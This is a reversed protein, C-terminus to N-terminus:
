HVRADLVDRVKHAIDIPTFPKQLFSVQDKLLGHRVVADDTYGSMYLVKLSPRLALLKEALERGNIQPMVIDTALLHIVEKYQSSIGLAEDGDRAELVSYGHRELITRALARVGDEDEVLLITETGDLAAQSTSSSGAIAAAEVDRPLYIKITTGSKPESHVAAHGGSQKIIGYVMALGLGTGSAGKTTFFPEFIRARTAADMGCGTDSVALVVHAGARADPYRAVYKQDLEVNATELTLKGGSPMADRSNIVLNMVVQEMQGRDARVRWLDEAPLFAFKIDEGILRGLMSEMNTCLDNLDLVVPTLVQKRSFALLQRTLGAARSGANHIEKVMERLPDEPRFSDGLIESYGLIVTLLNNFDHAVGGALKGVAEMKQAQRFQEELQLRETVDQALCIAGTFQGDESMLPTNFWECTIMGGSKTLNDNVLHASMDGARLRNLVEVARSRDVEPVIRVFPPVMGLAEEKRYGFMREAAPNWGVVRCDADLLLYALPMREVQLRLHQLLDDREAVLQRQELAQTVAQGLRGLRDKLLFDAAGEKM